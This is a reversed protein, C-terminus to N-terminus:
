EDFKIAFLSPVIGLCRGSIHGVRRRFSEGGLVLWRQFLLPTLHIPQHTQISRLYNQPSISMSLTFSTRRIVVIVLVSSVANIGNCYRGVNTQCATSDSKRIKNIARM